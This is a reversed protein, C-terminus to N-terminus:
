DPHQKKEVHFISQLKIIVRENYIPLTKGLWGNSSEGPPPLFDKAEVTRGNGRIALKVDNDFSVYVKLIKLVFFNM